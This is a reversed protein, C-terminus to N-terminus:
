LGFINPGASAGYSLTLRALASEYTASEAASVSLASTGAGAGTPRLTISSGNAASAGGLFWTVIPATHALSFSFPAAYFSAETDRIPYSGTLARDFRIGLLPDSAYIRLTPDQPALSVSAGAVESTDQTSVVVSFSSSRYQMPANVIVSSAGIGSADTLISGDQRWSYSLTAPDIAAGAATRFGAVAVLRIEGQMPVLPKGLYLPPASAIPEQVLSLDGPRVNLTQAYSL